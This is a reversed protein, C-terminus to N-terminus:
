VPVCLLLFVTLSVAMRGAVRVCLWLSVCVQTWLRMCLRVSVYSAMYDCVYLGIRKHECASVVLCPNTHKVRFRGKGSSMHGRPGGPPPSVRQRWLRALNVLCQHCLFGFDPRSEAAGPQTIKLLGRSSETGWNRIRYFPSIVSTTHTVWTLSLPRQDSM